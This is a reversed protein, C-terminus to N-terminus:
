RGAEALLSHISTELRELGSPDAEFYGRIKGRADVLVLHEGHMVDFASTDAGGKEFPIKMGKVVARNMEDLPGTLFIWRKENARWKAAYASLKDPTDVEPDVSFSVLKVALEHEATQEERELHTQLTRMRSTLMPCASQCGTFIFDAVWVNGRLEDGHLARGRQDVLSFNPIESLIPLPEAARATRGQVLITCFLLLLYLISVAFLSRAWKTGATARLGFCGWGFFVAGLVSAWALYGYKAIGLPVLLLSVCVLMLLYRVISHKTALIGVANPTVKLGANRYEESRFLTIALFHPIQWFFLIGFLVLGGPDVRGTAATWGLLPPMAGPVAGVWLAWHSRQKLPTYALVYILNALLALLATTLNVGLALIPIAAVSLVVGFWLAASPSMRGAPLPRDRTREMRGDIDREIYMNLANAGAVVLLIGALALAAVRRDTAGPALWVGGAATTAVLATIRPKTLAVFDRLAVGGAVDAGAALREEHM